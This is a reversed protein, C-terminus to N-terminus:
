LKMNQYSTASHLFFFLSVLTILIGTDIMSLTAAMVLGFMVRGFSAFFKMDLLMKAKESFWATKEQKDATAKSLLIVKDNKWGCHSCTNESELIADNSM